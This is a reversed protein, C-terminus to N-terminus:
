ITAPRDGLDTVWTGLRKWIGPTGPLLLIWEGRSPSLCGWFARDPAQPYNWGGLQALPVGLAKWSVVWGLVRLFLCFKTCRSHYFAEMGWDNPVAAKSERVPAGCSPALYRSWWRGAGTRRACHGDKQAAEVKGDSNSFIRSDRSGVPTKGKGSWLYSGDQLGKWRAWWM